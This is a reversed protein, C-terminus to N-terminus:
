IILNLEKEIESNLEKGEYLKRINFKRLKCIYNYPFKKYINNFEGACKNYLTRLSILKIENKNLDKMIGDLSKVEKLKYNDQYINTVEFYAEDLLVDRDYQDLKSTKINKVEDFIKYEINLERSIINIVRLVLDEKVKLFEEVEKKCMNMKYVLSLLIESKTIYFILILCVFLVILGLIFLFTVM